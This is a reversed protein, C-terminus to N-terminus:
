KALLVLDQRGICSYFILGGPSLGDCEAGPWTYLEWEIEAGEDTFAIELVGAPTLELGGGMFKASPELLEVACPFSDCNEASILVASSGDQRYLYWVVASGFGSDQTVYVGHGPKEPNYYLGPEAAAVVSGASLAGIVWQILTKM